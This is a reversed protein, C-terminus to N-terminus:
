FYTKKQALRKHYHHNYILFIAIIIALLILLLLSLPIKCLPLQVEIPTEDKVSIKIKAHNDDFKEIFLYNVDLKLNRNVDIRKEQGKELILYDQLIKPGTRIEATDPNLKALTIYYNVDNYIYRGTCSNNILFEYVPIIDLNGIFFECYGFSEEEFVTGTSSSGSGGTGEESLSSTTFTWNESYTVNSLNNICYVSWNYATGYLLTVPFSQQTEETISVNTSNYSSTSWNLLLTCNDVTGLPDTVNYYLNNNGASVGTSANSPSILKIEYLNINLSTIGVAEGTISPQSDFNTYVVVAIIAILLIIFRIIVTKHNILGAM